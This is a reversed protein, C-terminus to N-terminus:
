EKLKRIYTKGAPKRGVRCTESWIGHQSLHRDGARLTESQKLRRYGTPTELKM